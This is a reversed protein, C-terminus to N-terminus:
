PESKGTHPKQGKGPVTDPADDFPPEDLEAIGPLATGDLLKYSYHGLGSPDLNLSAAILKGSRAHELVHELTRCFGDLDYTRVPFTM